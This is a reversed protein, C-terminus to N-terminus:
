RLFFCLKNYKQSLFTFVNHAGTVTPPFLSAYKRRLSIMSTTRTMVVLPTKEKREQPALATRSQSHCTEPLELLCRADGM